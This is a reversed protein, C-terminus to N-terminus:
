VANVANVFEAMIVVLEDASGINFITKCFLSRLDAHFNALACRECVAGNNSNCM